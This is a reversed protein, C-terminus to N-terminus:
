TWKNLCFAPGNTRREADVTVRDGLLLRRLADSQFGCIDPEPGTGM